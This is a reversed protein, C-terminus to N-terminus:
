IESVVDFLNHQELLKANGITVRYSNRNLDAFNDAFERLDEVTTRLIADIRQQKFTATIGNLYEDRATVAKVVPGQLPTCAGYTGVILQQLAGPTLELSRVQGAIEEYAQYTKSIQPDRYSVFACNGSRHNFQVFCGYAGGAQRVTNWLYDRSLWTKLVEFSGTYGGDRSFLKGGLVNFVVEASTAFAQSGPQKALLPLRPHEPLPSADLGSFLSPASHEFTEIVANDGVVHAVMRDQRLVQTKLRELIDLFSEENADYDQALTKLAQYATAGVVLENYVGASSLSSMARVVALQYGESQAGHEEWTFERQVIERIRRRNHFSVETLLSCILEMARDQYLSLCKLGFWQLPRVEESQHVPLYATFSSSFGGTYTNIEKALQIYSKTTTGIETVLTAFIELYPLLEPDVGRCDFGVNVYCIGHTPLESTILEMVGLRDSTVEHFLPSPDLDVLSLRPLCQLDRETNVSAQQEMSHMTRELLEQRQQEGLRAAHASLRREEEAMNEQLREPDPRLCVTATAPNELLYERILTELYGEDLALRRLEDFLDTMQMAVFPDLGHKLAPIAKGILELGQQAKNTEERQGFEFKNLEALVLERELGQHVLSALTQHYVSKFADLHEPEAGVLYTMMVTKFSSNHIFLGGFDKCLDREFIALKLPSADSNFLINAIVQFATNRLRDEATGIVSSVALFTRGDLSTGLPVPYTDEVFVPHVLDHGHNIEAPQVPSTFDNFFREEVFALEEELNADGYFFLTCNSPHYHSRHFRLFDQYSLNPIHRPDGGSEHAYTSGPMLAKYSNHFLARIPDSYEGKMENFVVGQYKLPQTLSELHYHWGEQEFTTQLLLPHLTVDCYVDMINFYEKSNRTAFPYWTTDAGTLANLYTMLGGKNIEGFVDKVPYKKSGMLVSHELIHAVGTSDTPVTRFALCFTKNPDQNKLALAQCGLRRHRFLYATTDHQDLHAIKELTFGHYECGTKM